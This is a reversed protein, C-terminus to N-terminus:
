IWTCRLHWMAWWPLNGIASAIWLMRTTAKPLGSPPVWCPTRVKFGDLVCEDPKEPMRGGRLSLLNIREPITYFRYVKSEDQCTVIYDQYVVGEADVIGELKEARDLQQQAWGYSNVLRIDFMNQKDVFDQGTAVMDTKTMLLGSFLAAGLAIISVIAVYRGFSNLISQRLNKRMANRKMVM